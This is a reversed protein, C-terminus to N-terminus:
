VTSFKSALLALTMIADIGLVIISAGTACFVILLAKLRMHHVPLQDDVVWRRDDLTM